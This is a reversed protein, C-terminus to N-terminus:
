GFHRLFLAVVPAERWLESLRVEHEEAGQRLIPDPAAGGVATEAV